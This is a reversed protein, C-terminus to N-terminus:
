KGVSVVSSFSFSAMADDVVVVVVVGLSKSSFTSTNPIVGKCIRAIDALGFLFRIFAINSYKWVTM